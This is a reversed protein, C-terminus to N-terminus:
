YWERLRIPYPLKELSQGFTDMSFDVRRKAKVAYGASAASPATVIPFNLQFGAQDKWLDKSLEGFFRM